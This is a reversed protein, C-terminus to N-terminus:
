LEFRPIPPPSILVPEPQEILPWDPQWEPVQKLLEVVDQAVETVKRHFLPWDRSEQFVLEPTSLEKFDWRSIRRAEMPFNESDSYLIPYVLGQPRDLSALGLQRERARMSQWEAMCWNSEFYPPTFLPILIKSHRLAKRLEEPWRVGRPMSKDVYVRPVPAFQDALCDKLKPYFHNMLWKGVSGHRCYSIFVDFKYGSVSWIIPLARRNNRPLFQFYRRPRAPFPRFSPTIV